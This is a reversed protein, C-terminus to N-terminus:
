HYFLYFRPDRFKQEEYLTSLSPFFAIDQVLNIKQNKEKTTTKWKYVEWQKAMVDKQVGRM